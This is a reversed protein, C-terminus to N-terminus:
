RPDFPHGRLLDHRAYVAAPDVGAAAASRALARDVPDYPEPESGLLLTELMEVAWPPAPGRGPEWTGDRGVLFAVDLRGETLTGTKDVCAVTAAGRTEVGTLERGGGRGRGRRCGACSLV